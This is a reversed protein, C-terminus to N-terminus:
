PPCPRRYSERSVFGIRSRIAVRRPPSGFLPERVVFRLSLLGVGFGLLVALQDFGCLLRPPEALIDVRVGVRVMRVRTEDTEIIEIPYGNIKLCTGHDPITELMEVPQGDEVYTHRCQCGAQGPEGRLLEVKHLGEVWFTRRELSLFAPYVERLPRAIEITYAYM